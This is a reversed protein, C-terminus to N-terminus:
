ALTTRGMNTGVRADRAMDDDRHRAVAATAEDRVQGGILGDNLERSQAAQGVYRSYEEDFRQGLM